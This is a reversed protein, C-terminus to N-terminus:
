FSSTVGPPPTPAFSANSEQEEQSLPGEGPGHEPHIEDAMERIAAAISELAEVLTLQPNIGRGFSPNLAVGHDGNVYIGAEFAVDDYLAGPNQPCLMDADDGERILKANDEMGEAAIRLLDAILHERNHQEMEDLQSNEGQLSIEGEGNLKLTLVKSLEQPADNEEVAERTNEDAM